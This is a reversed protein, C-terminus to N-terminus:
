EKKEDRKLEVGDGTREWGLREHVHWCQLMANEGCVEAGRCEVARM